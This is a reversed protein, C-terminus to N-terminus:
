HPANQAEILKRYDTPPADAAPDPRTPGGPRVAPVSASHVAGGPARGAETWLAHLEAACLGLFLTFIGYLLSRKFVSPRAPAPPQDPPADPRPLPADGQRLLGRLKGLYDSFARVPCLLRCWPRRFLLSALLVAVTLAFMRGSGTNGFAVGFPDYAALAPNQRLLATALAALALLRATWLMWPVPAPPACNTIRGLGEQVAGFPCIHSCYLNKRTLLIILAALGLGLLPGWAAVGGLWSGSLALALTPLSFPVGAMFGLLLCSAALLAWRPWRGLAKVRRSRTLVLATLFFAAVLAVNLLEKRNAAPQTVAPAPALNMAAMAKGMAHLFATSSMTAGSVADVRPLARGDAGLFAAPLGAQILRTLYPRTDASDLIAVTEVRGHSDVFVAVRLPGGYGPHDALAITLSRAGATGDPSAPGPQRSTASFLGDGLKRITAIDPRLARLRTEEADRSLRDGAFWAGALLLPPLLLLLLTLFRRAAM